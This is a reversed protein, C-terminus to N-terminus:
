LNTIFQMTDINDAYDNLSPMQTQGFNLYGKGVICQLNGNEQNIFSNIEDNNKYYQYFLCSIPSCLANNEVINVFNIDLMKTQNMLYLTRQYDLNNMYANHQDLFSFSQFAVLLNSFDYNEPLLLASVNRCGLGFYDFVDHGLAILQEISESGDLIAISNRNKRIIHKYKGFYYEFYRASNNSGTAIVADFDQLREVINIKDHLLADFSQWKKLVFPLLIKDKEALKLQLINGSILVCLIDHFSVMPLNGAAVIAITKPKKDDNIAYISLWETLKQENLFEKAINQISYKINEPTFWYNHIYTRHIIEELEADDSLLFDALQQAARIRNQMNM